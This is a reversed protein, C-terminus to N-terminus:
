GNNLSKAFDIARTLEDRFAELEILNCEAYYPDPVDQDSENIWVRAAAPDIEFKLGDHLKPKFEVCSTM